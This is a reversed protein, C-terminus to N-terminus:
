NTLEELHRIRNNWKQSKQPIHTTNHPITHYPKEQKKLEIVLYASFSQFLWPPALVARKWSPFALFGSHTQILIPYTCSLISNQVRMFGRLMDLPSNIPNEQQGWTWNWKVRPIGQTAQMRCKAVALEQVHQQIVQDIVQAVQLLVYQQFIQFSLIM